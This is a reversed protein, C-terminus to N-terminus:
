DLLNGVALGVAGAVYGGAYGAAADVGGGSYAGISTAKNYDNLSWTGGDIEQLMEITLEEM